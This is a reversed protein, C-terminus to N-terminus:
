LQNDRVEVTTDARLSEYFSAADATGFGSALQTRLSERDASALKAPDGAVIDDLVAVAFRTGEAFVLREIKGKSARPLKFLETAIPAEVSSGNRGISGPAKLEAKAQEALKDITAGKSAAEMLEKLLKRAAKETQDAVLRQQVEARAQEFTKTKSPLHEKLRLVVIHNPALELSSSNYGNELVDKGFAADVFARNSAVGQGGARSFASTSQVKLKLEDAAPNLSSIDNQVLDVFKGAIDSFQQDRQRKKNEEVLQARVEPFTQGREPEIATVQIIHYGFQSKVPESIDNAKALAFVADEFPKVMQGNRQVFGLDGGSEKSGADDSNQKALEAFDAGDKLQKALKDAKEKAAKQVDAAATEAAEVLIHRTARRELVVFRTKEAEYDKNLEEESPEKVQFDDGKIEVYEVSVQEETKFESSRSAFFKKLEADSPKLADRIPQQNIEFFRVTRQQDRLQIHRNLEADTVFSSDSLVSNIRNSSLDEVLREEFVRPTMGISSLAATYATGSFKGDVKFAEIKQIEAQLEGKGVVLGLKDAAQRMLEARVMSDVFDRKTTKQEFFKGDLQGGFQQTLRQRYQGYREQYDATAIEEDGVKAIFTDTTPAFYSAIGWVGILFAMIALIVFAFWGTVKDRIIQIMATIYKGSHGKAVAATTRSLLPLVRRNRRRAAM